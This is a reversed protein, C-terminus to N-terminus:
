SHVRDRVKEILWLGLGTVGLAWAAGYGLSYHTVTSPGFFGGRFAEYAHVMPMYLIVKQGKASFWEVMFFAGSLPVLLYQIPQMFREFIESYESAAALMCGFGFGLGAMLLWGALMLSFDYIPGLVGFAFLVGYVILLAATTGLFELALRSIVADLYTVNRHYLLNRSSRLIFVAPMTMHRWLTLPLYGTFVIAVVQLGHEFPPKLISWMLMVGSCLLMPELIVWVFGLNERGYRTVLFRIVLANMTRAQVALSARLSPARTPRLVASDETASSPM